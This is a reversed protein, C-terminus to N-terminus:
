NSTLRPLLWTLARQAGGVDAWGHGADPVIHAEVSGGGRCGSWSWVDVEGQTSTRKDGCGAQNTVNTLTSTVSRPAMGLHRVFRSSTLGVSGDKEGHVALLDPLRLVGIAAVLSLLSGLFMLVAGVVDLVDPLDM